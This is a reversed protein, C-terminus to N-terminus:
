KDLLELGKFAVLLVEQNWHFFFCFQLQQFGYCLFGIFMIKKLKDAPSRIHQIHCVYM